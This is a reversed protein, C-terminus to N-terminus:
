KEEEEIEWLLVGNAGLLAGVGILYVGAATHPIADSCLLIIGAAISAGSVLCNVVSLERM